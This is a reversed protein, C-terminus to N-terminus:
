LTCPPTPSRYLSWIWREISSPQDAPPMLVCLYSTIIASYLLIIIMAAGVCLFFVSWLVQIKHVVVVVVVVVVAVVVVLLILKLCAGAECTRCGSCQQMALDSDKLAM